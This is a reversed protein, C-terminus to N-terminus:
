KMLIGDTMALIFTRLNTDTTESGPREHIDMWLVWANAAAMKITHIFKAIEVKRMPHPFNM